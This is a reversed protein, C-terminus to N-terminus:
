KKLTIKKSLKERTNLDLTEVHKQLGYASISLTFMRPEVNIFQFHGIENTQVIIVEDLSVLANAVPRGNGTMVTGSIEGWQTRDESYYELLATYILYAEQRNINSEYLKKEILPDAIGGLDVIIAPSGTQQLVYDAAEVTGYTQLNAYTKFNNLVLSGLIKGQTSTPYAFTTVSNTKNYSRRLSIFLDSDAANAKRVRAYPSLDDGPQITLQANAGTKQLYEVLYRATEMNEDSAQLGTPGSSGSMLGGFEPDILINKGLLAGDYMPDLNFNVSYINNQDITLIKQGPYYGNKRGSIIYSENSYSKLFVTGEQDSYDRITGDIEIQADILPNSKGLKTKERVNIWLHASQLPLNPIEDNIVTEGAILSFSLNSEGSQKFYFYAKGNHTYASQQNNNNNGIKLYVITSDRVANHHADLVDAQIQILTSKNPPITEPFHVVRMAAPVANTEFQSRYLLSHNGRLNAVSVLLTHQGNKLPQKPKASISPPNYIYPVPEGDVTLTIMQPDIGDGFRDELITIAIDPLATQLVQDRGPIHSSISPVGRSFYDLIGLFYSKAEIDISEPKRLKKELIPNSIYSAEGLVATRTNNRLVYYNGPRLHNEPIQLNTVLHKHIYKAADKSSYFDEMKYYTEIANFRRDIPLRSNHHLSIFLDAETDNSTRVRYDLDNGRLSDINSLILDRDKERTMVVQAGAIKLYSQLRLAIALNVNKEELGSSGVAGSAAGGHGADLVIVRNELPSTDINEFPEVLATYSVDRIHVRACSIFLFILIVIAASVYYTKHTKKCM